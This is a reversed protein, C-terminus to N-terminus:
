RLDRERSKPFYHVRQKCTVLHVVPITPPRAFNACAHSIIGASIKWASAVEGELRMVIALKAPDVMRPDGLFVEDVEVLHALAATTVDLDDGADFRRSYRSTSCGKDEGDEREPYGAHHGFRDKLEDRTQDQLGCCASALSM